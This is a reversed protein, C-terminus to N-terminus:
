QQKLWRAGSGSLDLSVESGVTVSEEPGLLRWLGSKGPLTRWVDGGGGGGGGGGGVTAAPRLKRAITQLERGSDLKVSFYAEGHPDDDHVKLITGPEAASGDGKEYVIRDDKKYNTANCRGDAILVPRQKDAILVPRQKDEIALAAAAAGGEVM